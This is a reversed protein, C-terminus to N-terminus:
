ELLCVLDRAKIHTYRALMNINRHGSIAQLQLLNLKRNAYRTIATHRLSHFCLAKPLKLRDCSRRFAQSVLNPKTTFLFGGQTTRAAEKLVALARSNLPVDRDFGNKTNSLRLTKTQWNICETTISLCESRRMATEYSLVVLPAVKPSINNLIMQYQTSDIVHERPRGARPLKYGELINPLRNFKLIRSLLQLELRITSDSVLTQREQTYAAIHKLTIDKAQLPLGKILNTARYTTAETGGRGKLTNLYSNSCHELSGAILSNGETQSVWAEAETITKFTKTIAKQGKVRVMANINGSPLVRYTAMYVDRQTHM